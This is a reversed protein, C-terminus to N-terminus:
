EFSKEFVRRNIEIMRPKRRGIVSLIANMANEKSIPLYGHKIAYGFLYINALIPKEVIKKTDIIEFKLSFKELISKVEELTPYRIKELYVSIPPIKFNNILFITKDKRGYYCARLSELLELSIILDADAQMVLPSYIKEGFRIHMETHGGRQSLGHLEATKVDYGQLLSAEAIIRGLTLIGQGGIGTIILNFKM